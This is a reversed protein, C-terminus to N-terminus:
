SNIIAPGGAAPRSASTPCIARALTRSEAALSDAVDKWSGRRITEVGCQQCQGRRSCEAGIAVSRAHQFAQQSSDARLLSWTGARDTEALGLATEPHRPLYIRDEHHQVLFLRDLVDVVDDHLAGQGVRAAMETVTGPGWLLDCPYTTVEFMSDFQMLGDDHPVARVLIWTWDDIASNGPLASAFQDIVEQLNMPQGNDPVAAEGSMVEGAPSWGVFQIERRIPAPYLRGGPTAAGWLQNVIEAM